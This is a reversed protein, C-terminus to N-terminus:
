FPLLGIISITGSVTIISFTTSVLVAQSLFEADRNFQINILAGIMATPAACSLILARAIDGHFSMLLVLGAGLIPGIVLRLFSSIAIDSYRMRVKLGVLQAGLTILALGITAQSIYHLSVTLPIPIHWEIQKLVLAATIAYLGPLTLISRIAQMRVENANYIGCTFPIVGQLAAIIVQISMANPDNAFVLQNIPIMFNGSNYFLVSSRMDRAKSSKYRRIFIVLQVIVAM